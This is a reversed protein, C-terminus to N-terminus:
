VQRQFAFHSSFGTVTFVLFATLEDAILYNFKSAEPFLNTTINLIFLEMTTNIISIPVTYKLGEIPV